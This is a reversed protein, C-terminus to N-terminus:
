PLNIKLVAAHSEAKEKAARLYATYNTQKDLAHCSILSGVFFVANEFRNRIVIKFKWLILFLFFLKKRVFWMSVIQPIM